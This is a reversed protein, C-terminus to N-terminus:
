VCEIPINEVYLRIADILGDHHFCKPTGAKEILNALHEVFIYDAGFVKIIDAISSRERL